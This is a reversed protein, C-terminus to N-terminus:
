QTEQTSSVIKLCKPPKPQGLGNCQGHINLMEPSAAKITNTKPLLAAFRPLIGAPAAELSAFLISHYFKRNVRSPNM